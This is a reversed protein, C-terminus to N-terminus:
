NLNTNFHTRKEGRLLAPTLFNELRHLFDSMEAVLIYMFLSRYAVRLSNQPALLVFFSIYQLFIHIKADDRSSASAM